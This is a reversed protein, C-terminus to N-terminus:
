KIMDSLTGVLSAPFASLIITKIALVWDSEWPLKNLVILILTVVVLSIFYTGVVRYVFHYLYNKLDHRYINYYVFISILVLSAISIFVINKVPLDKGITWAEETLYIPLAFLAAGIMVQIVDQARFECMFPKLAYSIVKGSQDAVPVVRHLAGNIRKLVTIGPNNKM